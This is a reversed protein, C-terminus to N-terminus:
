AALPLPDTNRRDCLNAVGQRIAPVMRNRLLYEHTVQRDDPDPGSPVTGNEIWDRPVGTVLSWANLTIKRVARKDGEADTVTKQSVGIAEAFERTTMNTKSRAKRLRDGLTWEPIRDIGASMTM